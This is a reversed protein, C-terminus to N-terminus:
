DLFIAVAPFMVQPRGWWATVTTKEEGHIECTQPTSTPHPATASPQLHQRIHHKSRPPLLISHGEGPEVCLAPMNLKQLSCQKMGGQASSKLCSSGMARPSKPAILADCQLLPKRNGPPQDMGRDELPRRQLASLGLATRVKLHGEFLVWTSRHLHLKPIALLMVGM